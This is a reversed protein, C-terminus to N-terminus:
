QRNIVDQKQRICRYTDLSDMMGIIYGNVQSKETGLMARIVSASDLKKMPMTVVSVVVM